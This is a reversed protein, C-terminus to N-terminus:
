VIRTSYSYSVRALPCFLSRAGESREGPYLPRLRRVVVTCRLARFLGAPAGSGDSGSDSRAADEGRPEAGLHDVRTLASLVLGVRRAPSELDTIKKKDQRLFEFLWVATSFVFLAARARFWLSARLLPLVRPLLQPLAGAVAANFLVCYCASEEMM